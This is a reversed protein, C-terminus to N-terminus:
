RQLEKRKLALFLRIIRFSETALTNQAGAESSLLFVRFGLREQQFSILPHQAPLVPHRGWVPKFQIQGVRPEHIEITGPAFGLLGRFPALSSRSGGLPLRRAVAPSTAPPAGSDLTVSVPGFDGAVINTSDV